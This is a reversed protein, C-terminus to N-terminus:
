DDSNIITATIAEIIVERLENASKKSLINKKARSKITNEKKRKSKKM